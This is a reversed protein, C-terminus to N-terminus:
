RDTEHRQHWSLPQEGLRFDSRVLPSFSSLWPPLSPESSILLTGAATAATAPRHALATRWTGSKHDLLAARAFVRRAHLYLGGSTKSGQVRTTTLQPLVTMSAIGRRKIRWVNRWFPYYYNFFFLIRDISQKGVMRISGEDFTFICM